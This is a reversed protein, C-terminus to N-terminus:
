QAPPAPSAPPLGRNPFMYFAKLAVAGAVLAASIDHRLALWTFADNGSLLQDLEKSLTTLSMSAFVIIGAQVQHPLSSWFRKLAAVLKSM